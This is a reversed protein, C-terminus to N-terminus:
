QPPAKHGLLLCDYAARPFQTDSKYVQRMNNEHMSVKVNISTGADIIAISSMRIQNYRYALFLTDHKGATNNKCMHIHNGVTKFVLADLSEAESCWRAAISPHLGARRKNWLKLRKKVWERYNQDPCVDELADFFVQVAELYARGKNDVLLNWPLNDM